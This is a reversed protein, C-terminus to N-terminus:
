SEIIRPPRQASVLTPPQSGAGSKAGCLVRKELAQWKRMGGTLEWVCQLHQLFNSACCSFCFTWKIFHLPFSVRRQGGSGGGGGCVEVAAGAVPEALPNFPFQSQKTAQRPYLLKRQCLGSDVPCPCILPMDSRLLPKGPPQGLRGVEIGPLVRFVQAPPSLCRPPPPVHPLSSPCRNPLLPHHAQLAM